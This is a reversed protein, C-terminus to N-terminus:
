TASGSRGKGKKRKRGRKSVGRDRKVREGELANLCSRHVITRNELVPLGGYELPVRWVPVGADALWPDLRRDVVGGCLFCVGDFLSWVQEMSFGEVLAAVVPANVVREERVQSVGRRPAVGRKVARLYRQNCTNSCFESDSRVFGYWGGCMVCVRSRRVAVVDGTRYWRMYHNRCLGRAVPVGCCGQALCSQFGSTRVM